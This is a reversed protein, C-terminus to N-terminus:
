AKEMVTYTGNPGFCRSCWYTETFQHRQTALNDCNCCYPGDKVEVKPKGEAKMALYITAYNIIDIITDELKEDAVAFTKNEEFSDLRALKDSLRVLVGFTGYRRFNRFIDGEHAYDHNKAVQIERAKDCTKKHLETLEARNVNNRRKVTPVAKDQCWYLCRSTKALGGAPTVIYTIFV